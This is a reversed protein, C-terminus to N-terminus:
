KEQQEKKDLVKNREKIRDLQQETLNFKKATKKIVLLGGVIIGLILLSIIATTISM